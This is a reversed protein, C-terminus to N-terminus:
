IFKIEDVSITNYGVYFYKYLCDHVYMCACVVYIILLTHLSGFTVIAAYMYLACLTDRTNNM